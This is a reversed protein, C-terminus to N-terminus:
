SPLLYAGVKRCKEWLHKIAFSACGARGYSIHAVIQRLLDVLRRKLKGLKSNKASRACQDSDIPMGVRQKIFKTHGRGLCRNRDVKLGAAVARECLYNECDNCWIQWMQEVCNKVCASDRDSASRCLIPNGIRDAICTEADKDPDTFALPIRKPRQNILVERCCDGLRLELAVPAHTPLVSDLIVGAEGILSRACQNVLIADIRTGVSTSRVFCTPDPDHGQSVACCRCVDIWNANQIASSTELKVNFDGALLVPAPGLAALVEFMKSLMRENCAMRESSNNAGSFGYLCVIHLVQRGHGIPVVAHVFRRTALLESEVENIPQARQLVLGNRAVIAVGGQKCHWPNSLEEQPQGFVVSCGDGELSERMDHQGAATLRVEQLCAIDWPLRLVEKYQRRLSTVNATM